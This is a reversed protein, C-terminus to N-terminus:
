CKYVSPYACAYECVRAATVTLRLLQCDHATSLNGVGLNVMLAQPSGMFSVGTECLDPEHLVVM